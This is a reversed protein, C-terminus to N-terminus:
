EEQGGEGNGIGAYNFNGPDVEPCMRVGGTDNEVSGPREFNMGLAGEIGSRMKKSRRARGQIAPCRYAVFTTSSLSSCRIRIASVEGPVVRITKSMFTGAVNLTERSSLGSRMSM